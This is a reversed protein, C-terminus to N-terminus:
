SDYTYDASIRRSSTYQLVAGLRNGVDVAGEDHTRDDARSHLHGERREVIGSERKSEKINMHVSGWCPEGYQSIECCKNAEDGNELFIIGTDDAILHLFTPFTETKTPGLLAFSPSM